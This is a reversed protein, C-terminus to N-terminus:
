RSMDFLTRAQLFADEQNHRIAFIIGALFRKFFRHLLLLLLVTGDDVHDREEIRGLACAGCNSSKLLDALVGSACGVEWGINLLHVRNRALDSGRDAALIHNPVLRGAGGRSMDIVGDLDVGIVGIVAFQPDACPSSVVAVRDTPSRLVDNNRIRLQVPSIHFRLSARFQANATM